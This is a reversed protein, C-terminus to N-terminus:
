YYEAMKAATHSIHQLRNLGISFHGSNVSYENCVEKRARGKVLFDFLANIVKESHMSSIGLLLWFQTDSVHGPTLWGQKLRASIDSPTLNLTSGSSKTAIM